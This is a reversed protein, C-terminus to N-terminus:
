LEDVDENFTLEDVESHFSPHSPAYFSKFDRRGGSFMLMTHTAINKKSNKCTMLRINVHHLRSRYM